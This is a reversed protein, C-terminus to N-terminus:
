FDKRRNKKKEAQRKKADIRKRVAAKSPKTPKRKKKVKLSNNILRYFLATVAAKNKLQSRTESSQLVLLGNKNIRNALKLSLRNKELTSLVASGSISFLLQVKTEVKNVNQGGSGGSRATKFELESDLEDIYKDM